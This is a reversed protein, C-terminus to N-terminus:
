LSKFGSFMRITVELSSVSKFITSKPRELIMPGLSVLKSGNPVNTLSELKIKVITKHQEQPGKISVKRFPPQDITM